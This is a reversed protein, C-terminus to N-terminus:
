IVSTSAASAEKRAKEAELMAEEFKWLARGLDGGPKAKALLQKHDEESLLVVATGLVKQGYTEGNGSNDLGYTRRIRAAFPKAEDNIPLINGIDRNFSLKWRGRTKQSYLLLQPGDPRIQEFTGPVLVWRIIHDRGINRTVGIIAHVKDRHNTTTDNM